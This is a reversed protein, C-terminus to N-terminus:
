ELNTTSDSLADGNQFTEPDREIADDLDGHYYKSFGANPGPAKIRIGEMICIRCGFPSVHGDHHCLLAAGPIDGSAMVVHAKAHIILGDEGKVHLGETELEHLEALLPPLFADANSSKVSTPLIAIQIM